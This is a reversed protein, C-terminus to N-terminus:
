DRLADRLVWAVYEAEEANLGRMGRTIKTSTGNVGISLTTSPAQGSSRVAAQGVVISGLDGRSAEFSGKWPIPGHRVRLSDATLEVETRNFLTALVSYTLGVGVAVHVLPFVFVWFIAEPERFFLLVRVRTLERLENWNM